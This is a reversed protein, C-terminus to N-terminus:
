CIIGTLFNSAKIPGPGFVRTPNVICGNLDSQEVFERVLEEAVHKSKEYNTKGTESYVRNEDILSGCKSSGFVGATSTFVLRKVNVSDCALLINRTGGVNIQDYRAADIVPKALGALHFCSEVGELAKKLFDLDRIDGISIKINPHNLFGTAPSRRCIAVVTHNQSALAECIRSGIFGAAGTVGYIM